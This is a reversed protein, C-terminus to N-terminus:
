ATKETLKKKCRQALTSSASRYFPKNEQKRRAIKRKWGLVGSVIIERPSKRDYGYIKLEQILTEVIQMQLRCRCM